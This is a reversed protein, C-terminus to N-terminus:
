PMTGLAKIPHARIRVGIAINRTVLSLRVPRLEPDEGIHLMMQRRPLCSPTLHHAGEGHVICSKRLSMLKVNCTGKMRQMPYTARGEHSVKVPTRQICVERM